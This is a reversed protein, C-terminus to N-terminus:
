TRTVTGNQNSSLALIVMECCGHDRKGNFLCHPWHPSYQIERQDDDIDMHFQYSSRSVAHHRWWISVNEAYSVRQTPFEGTGPSYGVCLGTVRLKSTKKSRRRYLRNLLCDYPQHNSVGDCGSHRWQLTCEVPDCRVNESPDIDDQHNWISQCWILALDDAAVM